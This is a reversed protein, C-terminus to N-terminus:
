AFACLLAFVCLAVAFELIGERRQAGKRRQTFIGCLGGLIVLGREAQCLGSVDTYNATESEPDSAFLLLTWNTRDPHLRQEVLLLPRKVIITAYITLTAATEGTAGVSVRASPFKEGVLAVGCFLKPKLSAVIWM